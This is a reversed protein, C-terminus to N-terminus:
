LDACTVRVEDSYKAGIAPFQAELDVDPTYEKLAEQLAADAAGVDPEFVQAVCGTGGTVVAPPLIAHYIYYGPDYAQIVLPVEAVPVPTLLDRIHTSSLRGDAYSATWDRPGSIAIPTNDILVYTDGEFGEIWKMDFGSLSAEEEATLQGDMDPDLALDGFILLSYLDDYTWGIRLAIAENQDNLIVEIRTDIFVHPHALTPTASLMLLAPLLFRM